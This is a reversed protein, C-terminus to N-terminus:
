VPIFIRAVEAIFNSFPLQDLIKELDIINYSDLGILLIYIIILSLLFVRLQKEDKIHTEKIKQSENISM